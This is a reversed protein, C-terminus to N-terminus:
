PRWGKHRDIKRNRPTGPMGARGAPYGERTGPGAPTYVRGHGITRYDPTNMANVLPGARRIPPSGVPSRNSGAMIPYGSGAGSSATHIVM